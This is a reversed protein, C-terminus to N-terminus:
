TFLKIKLYNYKEQCSRRQTTALAQTRDMGFAAHHHADMLFGGPYSHGDQSLAAVGHVCGYCGAERQRDHV